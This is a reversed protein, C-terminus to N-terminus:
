DRMTEPIRAECAERAERGTATFGTGGNGVSGLSERWSPMPWCASKSALTAAFAEAREFMAQSQAVRAAAERERAQKRRRCWTSRSIGEALWPRQAPRRPM